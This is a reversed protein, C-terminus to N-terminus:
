FNKELWNLRDDTWIPPVPMDYPIPLSHMFLNKFYQQTYQVFPPFEGFTSAVSPGYFFLSKRRQM